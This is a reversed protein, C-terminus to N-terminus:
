LDLDTGETSPPFQTDTFVSSSLEESQFFDKNKLFCLFAVIQKATIRRKLVTRRNNQVTVRKMSLAEFIHWLFVHGQTLHQAGDALGGIDALLPSPRGRM